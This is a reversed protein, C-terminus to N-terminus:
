AAMWAHLHMLREPTVGSIRRDRAAGILKPWYDVPISKRRKMSAAHETSVGIAQGVKAAGGFREFLDDLTDM